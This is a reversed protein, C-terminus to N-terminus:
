TEFLHPLNSRVVDMLLQVNLPKLVFDNMGIAMCEDKSMGQIGSSVGIIPVKAIDLELLRIQQTAELGDLVPMQCDMLILDVDLGQKCADVAKKGDSVIQLDVNGIKRFFAKVIMQTPMSDEAYLVKLKRSPNFAKPTVVDQATQQANIQLRVEENQDLKSSASRLIRMRSFEDNGLAVLMDAVTVALCEVPGRARVTATRYGRIDPRKERIGEMAKLFAIEGVIEGAVRVVLVDSEEEAITDLDVGLADILVDCEGKNIFYMVEGIDGKRMLIDSDKFEVLNFAPQLVAALPDTRIASAIEEETVEVVAHPSETLPRDLPKEGRSTIWPHAMVGAIDLRTVPDVCLMKRLLDKFDDSLQPEVPFTLDQALAMAVIQFVTKGTFPLQACAMNYMCVGLSWIDARFPDYGAEALVEPALFAPTGVMRKAVGSSSVLDHIFSVGFDALKVEGGTCKLMNEPKLDMHAINLSHLYDLGLVIDRTYSLLTNEEVPVRNYRTFIPGEQCYELVLILEKQEADDIVEHMTRINPHNLKKLVAIEKRVAKLSNARADTWKIAYLHNDLQNMALKVKSHAGRGLDKILIYQNLQNFSQDGMQVRTTTMTSTIKTSSLRTMTSPLVGSASAGSTTASNTMSYSEVERTLDSCSGGSGSSITNYQVLKRHVEETDWICANEEGDGQRPVGPLPAQPPVHNRSGRAGADGGGDDGDVGRRSSKNKRRTKSFKAGMAARVRARTHRVRRGVRGDPAGSTPGKPRENKQAEMQGIVVLVCGPVPWTLRAGRPRQRPPEQHRKHTTISASARARALPQAWRAGKM